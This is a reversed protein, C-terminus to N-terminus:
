GKRKQKSIESWKVFRVIRGNSLKRLDAHRMHWPELRTLAEVLEERTIRMAQEKRNTTQNFPSHRAGGARSPFVVLRRPIRSASVKCREREQPLIGAMFVFVM